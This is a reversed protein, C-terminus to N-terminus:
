KTDIGLYHIADERCLRTNGRWEWSFSGCKRGCLACTVDNPGFDVHRKGLNPPPKTKPPLAAEKVGHTKRVAVVDVRWCTGAGAWVM